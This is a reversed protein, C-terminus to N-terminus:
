NTRWVHISKAKNWRLPFYHFLIRGLCIQYHVLKNTGLFPQFVRKQNNELHGWPNECASFVFMVNKKRNSAETGLNILIYWSLTLKDVTIFDSPFTLNTTALTKVRASCLDSIYKGDYNWLSTSAPWISFLRAELVVLFHTKGGKKPVLLSWWVGGSWCIFNQQMFFNRVFWPIGFKCFPDYYCWRNLNNCGASQLWTDELAM